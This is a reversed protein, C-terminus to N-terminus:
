RTSQGRTGILKPFVIYMICRGVIVCYIYSRLETYMFYVGAAVAIRYTLLKKARLYVIQSCIYIYTRVSPHTHTHAIIIIIIHAGRRRACQLSSYSAAAACSFLIFRRVRPPATDRM